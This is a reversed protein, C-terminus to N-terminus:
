QIGRKKMEEFIYQFSHDLHEHVILKVYEPNGNRMGRYIMWHEQLAKSRRDSLYVSIDRFYRLYAQLDSVIETLRTMQSKEYIFANFDSYNQLVESLIDNDDSIMGQNLLAELDNYDQETMLEMAKLTALTDLAKRIEFIEIADKLSIGIVTIGVGKKRQVLKEEVLLDMAYRIPTRSINLQNSLELENLREGAAIDGLIITKKLADYVSEKLTKKKSIILNKKIADIYEM